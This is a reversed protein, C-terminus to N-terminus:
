MLQETPPIPLKSLDDVLDELSDIQAGIRSMIKELERPVFPYLDNM